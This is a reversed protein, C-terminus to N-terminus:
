SLLNLLKDVSKIHATECINIIMEKTFVGPELKIIFRLIQYQCKTNAFMGWNSSIINWELEKYNAGHKILLRVLPLNMRVCASYLIKVNINAGYKILLKVINIVDKCTVVNQLVNYGRSNVLNIYTKVDGNCKEIANIILQIDKKTTNNNDSFRMLIEFCNDLNIVAGKELLYPLLISNRVQSLITNKGFDVEPHKDYYAEFLYEVCELANKISVLAEIPYKSVNSHIEAGHECLVKIININGNFCAALLPTNDRSIKNVDANYVNILLKVIDFKNYNIAYILLTTKIPCHCQYNEYHDKLINYYCCCVDDNVNFIKLYENLNYEFKIINNNSIDKEIDKTLDYIMHQKFIDLSNM